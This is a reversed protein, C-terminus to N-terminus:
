FRNGAKQPAKGPATEGPSRSAPPGCRVWAEDVWLELRGLNRALRNANELDLCVVAAGRRLEM